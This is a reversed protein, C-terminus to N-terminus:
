PREVPLARRGDLRAVLIGALLGFLHSEVSMGRSPVLGWVLGGYLAVAALAAALAAFSREYWAGALLYGFLGFVLGSAGVHYSPRGLLWVALGGVLTVAVAVRAFRAAGRLSVLWGLVLLPLTNALTHALSVHLLPAAVIGTLGHVTRPLIGFANLRHGLLANVLEVCWIVGLLALVVGIRRRVAANLPM